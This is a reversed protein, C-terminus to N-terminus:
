PKSPYSTVVLKCDPGLVLKNTFTPIGGPLTGIGVDQAKSGDPMPLPPYPPTTYVFTINSKPGGRQTAVGYNFTTANLGIVLPLMLPAPTPVPYTNMYISKQKPDGVIHYKYIHEGGTDDTGDSRTWPTKTDYQLDNSSVNVCAVPRWPTSNGGGLGGGGGGMGFSTFLFTTIDYGYTWQGPEGYPGPVYESPQKTWITFSFSGGGFLGSGGGGGFNAPNCVSDPGDNGVNASCVLGLPDTINLPDNIVYAYRNLSQPNNVDMSGLYPDPTMWRGQLSSYQRFWTYDLATEDDHELGTFKFNDVKMEPNYEQGYPLFTAQWIPYGYGGTLLRSSGLHDTGFYVTTQQPYIAHGTNVDIHSGTATIGSTGSISSVPSATQGTYVPQVTGDTSVLVMNEYIIAFPGAATDSEDNLALQTIKKGALSSLDVTRFHTGAQMQDDNLYYGEKDKVGWNSNTNDSFLLVVGGHSGTLQYQTFYLKDGTRITYNNLGGANGLYYDMYQTGCSSCRTGYIRLGNDSDQARALQGGPGAIHDQWSGDSARTALVQGGFYIYETSTGAVVKRVRTGDAAYTYTDASNDVSTIRGEADYVYTHFGDNLVNGAADYTNSTFHNHADAVSTRTGASGSTLNQQLFNGWADYVFSLGWVCSPPCGAAGEQATALRNLHDYSFSQTLNSNLQDAVSYVNGNNVATQGSPLYSLTHNAFTTMQPNSITLQTAQLRSNGVQTQTVGNGLTWSNAVGTPYFNTDAATWYSYVGGSPTSGNWQAFQVSNMFGTANYGYNVVRGSPYTLSTLGGALNYTASVPYNNTGCSSPTGQNNVVVRGMADYGFAMAGTCPTTYAESLRGILNSQTITPNTWGTAVDYLFNATPTGDSYSTSTVRNLADYANTSTINRADTKRCLATPDGSCVAGGSTLYSFNITGQEPTSSQTMRSLSDYAYTRARWQTSDPSGGKQSVTLLNNLVDYTYDTEYNSGPSPDEWVGTLRGLADSCSQRKNGAEDTVTVCNNSYAAQVTSNDPQMQTTPRGLADYTFHTIGDTSSSATRHPNSVSAVLGNSSYTTDVYDTGAPDSTLQQQSLRGLGDLITTTSASQTSTIKTSQTTSTASNYTYSTQGGDPFNVTLPRLLSDYTYTTQNNNQDTTATPLGTNPDYQTKTIHSVSGTQPLTVQTLYALSNRNVGDSFNDTYSFQTQNGAPDTSTLRNGTDDYTFTTTLSSNTTNVWTSLSTLNGRSGTIAIHQPVGTTPAPTSGDYAFSQQAKQNGSGDQVTITNPLNVIGNGLSAYTTLTKRILPGPANAGFDTEDVETPLGFTNLIIDTLSQQNNNLTVYKKIETIPLTVGTSSCNPTAGNYCTDTQLLVTSTGQNVTRHTEYFNAPTGTTQFNIVTLNAPTMADTINTTWGSGSGSRAYTTTGDSTVRTLGATSGDACFIGNSGGTYTYTITGGTRLTIAQIRGTVSGPFGPTPEYTFSYSSGDPYAISSVLSKSTPSYETIGTCGFNTQVTYAAYNVSVSRSTNSSDTYAFVLPNPSGGTITLATMGLTDTIVNTNSVTIQNGNLDTSTAAGYSLNVPPNAHIGERTIITAQTGTANLTYGSGDTAVSSFSSTSTGCQGTIIETSGSFPHLGGLRDHYIWNSTVEDTGHMLNPKAGCLISTITKSFSVYGTVVETVDRWGWGGVPQWTQSGSPGSPYWVSSDVSLAYTFPTGRGPKAFIPVEFHVNLNGLNIVDPGSSLSSFAPMGTSVQAVGAVSILLIACLCLSLHSKM